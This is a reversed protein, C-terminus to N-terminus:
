NIKISGLASVSFGYYETAREGLIDPFLRSRAELFPPATEEQKSINKM